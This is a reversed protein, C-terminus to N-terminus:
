YTTVQPHTNRSFRITQRLETDKKAAGRNTTTSFRPPQEVARSRIPRPTRMQRSLPADLRRQVTQLTIALLILTSQM